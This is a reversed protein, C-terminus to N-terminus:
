QKGDKGARQSESKEAKAMRTPRCRIARETPIQKMIETAM